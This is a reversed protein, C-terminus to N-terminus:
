SEGEFSAYAEGYSEALETFRKAHHKGYIEPRDWFGTGHGNAAPNDGLKSANLLQELNTLIM